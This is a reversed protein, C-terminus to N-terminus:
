ATATTVNWVVEQHPRVSIEQGPYATYRIAMNLHAVIQEGTITVSEWTRDDTTHCDSVLTVDYGLGMARHITSRVCADTQAGTVILHGAGLSALHNALETDAFADPYRKAVVTEGDEPAVREHIRWGDAGAARDPHDGEHQVYVIPVGDVRAREILAALRDLMGDRDWGNEVVGVQVDIVLLVSNEGYPGYGGANTGSQIM